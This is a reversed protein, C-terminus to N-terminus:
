RTIFTEIIPWIDHGTEAVYDAQWQHATEGNPIYGYNVAITKMGANIGSQIDRQHDGIYIAENVACKAHQCALELPEGHPKPHTVHEPCLVCLPRRAFTFREMLPTAYAEPKNTVIGWDIDAQHLNEILTEIGDFARTHTSLDQLYFDLLRQRLSATQPDDREVNFALKLMAYAGASVVERVHQETLPAQSESILLRNLANALDPATDLLTGDLDFFVARLSM